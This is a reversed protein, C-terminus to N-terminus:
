ANMGEEPLMEEQVQPAEQPQGLMTLINARAPAAGKGPGKGAGLLKQLLERGGGVPATRKQEVETLAALVQRDFEEHSLKRAM